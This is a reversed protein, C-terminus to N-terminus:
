VADGRAETDPEVDRRDAELVDRLLHDGALDRDAALLGPAEADRKVQGLAVADERGKEDELGDRVRAARELGDDGPLVGGVADEVVAPAAKVERQAREEVAQLGTWRGRSAALAHGADVVPVAHLQDESGVAPEQVAERAGLGDDPDVGLM